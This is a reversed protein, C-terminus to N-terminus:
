GVFLLPFFFAIHAVSKAEEWLSQHIIVLKSGVHLYSFILLYEYM